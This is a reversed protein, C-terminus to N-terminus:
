AFLDAEEYLFLVRRDHVLDAVPHVVEIGDEITERARRREGAEYGCEADDVRAEQLRHVDQLRREDAAFNAAVL